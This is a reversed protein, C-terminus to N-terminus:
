YVTETVVAVFSAPQTSDNSFSHAYGGSYVSCSGAPMPYREGNYFLTLEGSTVYLIDVGEHAIEDRVAAGPALTAVVLEFDLGPLRIVEYDVGAGRDVTIRQSPDIVLPRAKRATYGLLSGIDHGFLEAIRALRRLAIDSKGREVASLFSPSLGTADAAEQLSLGKQTRLRHIIEGVNPLTAKGSEV